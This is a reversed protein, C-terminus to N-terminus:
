QLDFPTAMGLLVANADVILIPLGDPEGCLVSSIPTDPSVVQPKPLALGLNRVADQISTALRKPRDSDSMRLVRALAADSVVRWEEATGVNIRIPLFSFSNALMRQRVLSLPQWPEACVPSKVCFDGIHDSGNVLADELVICALVVHAALHRAYAGQHLADNRARLVHKYLKPFSTHLCDHQRPVDEALPSRSALAVLSGEYTKLTGQRGTRVAGLREIAFLADVFGEADNLVVARAERLQDRFYM